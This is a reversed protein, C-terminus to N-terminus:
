FIIICDFNVQFNGDSFDREIRKKPRSLPLSDIWIYLDEMISEDLEMEWSM